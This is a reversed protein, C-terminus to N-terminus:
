QDAIAFPGMEVPGRRAAGHDWYRNAPALEFSPAESLGGHQRESEPKLQGCRHAWRQQCALTEDLVM